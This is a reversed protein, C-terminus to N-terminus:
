ELGRVEMKKEAPVWGRSEWWRDSCTVCEDPHHELHENRDKDWWFNLENDDLEIEDYDGKFVVQGEFEPVDKPEERNMKKLISWSTNKGGM